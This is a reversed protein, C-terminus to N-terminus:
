IAWIFLLSSLADEDFRFETETTLMLMPTVEKVVIQRQRVIRSLVDEEMAREGISLVAGIKRYDSVVNPDIMTGPEEVDHRYESAYYLIM